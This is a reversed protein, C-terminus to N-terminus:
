HTGTHVRGPLLNSLKAPSQAETPATMGLAVETCTYGQTDQARPPSVGAGTGAMNQEWCRRMKLDGQSM